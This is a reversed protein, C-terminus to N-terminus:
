FTCKQLSLLKERPFESHFIFYERRIAIQPMTKEGGESFTFVLACLVTSSSYLIMIDSLILVLAHCRSISFMYSILYFLSCCHANKIKEGSGVKVLNEKESCTM